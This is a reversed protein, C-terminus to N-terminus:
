EDHTRQTHKHQDSLASGVSAFAYLDDLTDDLRYNYPCDGANNNSTSIDYFENVCDIRVLTDNSLDCYFGVIVAGFADAVILYLNSGYAGVEPGTSAHWDGVFGMGSKVFFAFPDTGYDGLEIAGGHDTALYVFTYTGLWSGGAPGAPM